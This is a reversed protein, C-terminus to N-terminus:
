CWWSISRPSQAAFACSRTRIASVQSVGNLWYECTRADMDVLFGARDNLHWCAVSLGIQSKYYVAHSQREDGNGYVVWGALAAGCRAFSCVFWALCSVPCRSGVGSSRAAAALLCPLGISRGGDTLYKNTVTTPDALGFMTWQSGSSTCVLEFYHGRHLRCRPVFRM